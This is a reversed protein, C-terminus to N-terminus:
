PANDSSRSRTDIQPLSDAVHQIQNRHRILSLPPVLFRGAVHLIVIHSATCLLGSEVSTVTSDLSTVLDRGSCCRSKLVHEIFPVEGVHVIFM